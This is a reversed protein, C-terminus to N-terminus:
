EKDINLSMRMISSHPLEDGDGIPAFNIIHNEVLYEWTQFVGVPTPPPIFSRFVFYIFKEVKELIKGSIKESEAKEL